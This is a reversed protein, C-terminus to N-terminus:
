FSGVRVLAWSTSKNKFKKRTRVRLEIFVFDLWDYVRLEMWRQSGKGWNVIEWSSWAKLMYWMQPLSVRKDKEGSDQLEEGVITWKKWFGALLDNKKCSAEMDSGGDGGM